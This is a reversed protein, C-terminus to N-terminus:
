ERSKAFQRVMSLSFSAPDSITPDQTAKVLAPIVRRADLPCRLFALDGLCTAAAWRIEVESSDLRKLCEDELWGTDEDSRVVAYLATAVIHPDSSAFDRIAQERGIPDVREYKLESM